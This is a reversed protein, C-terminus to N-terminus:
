YTFPIAGVVITPIVFWTYNTQFNIKTLKLIPVIEIGSLPSYGQVLPGKDPPCQSM